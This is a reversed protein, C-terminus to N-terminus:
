ARPGEFPRRAPFGKAISRSAMFVGIRAGIFIFDCGGARGEKAIDIQAVGLDPRQANGDDDHADQQDHTEHSDNATYYVQHRPWRSLDRRHGARRGSILASSGAPAWIPRDRDLAISESDM